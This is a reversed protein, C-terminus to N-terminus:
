VQRRVANALSSYGMRTSISVATKAVLKGIAEDKAPCIVDAPGSVSVAAIVVGRYNLIPAGICRLSRMM